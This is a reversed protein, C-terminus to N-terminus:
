DAMRGPYDLEVDLSTHPELAAWADIDFRLTVIGCTPMTDIRRAASLADAFETLGPNHGCLLLHACQDQERAVRLLEAVGATYLREDHLVRAPPVKLTRAFVEATALARPATSVVICDIRQKRFKLRRAMEAADELGRRTLVRDFDSQGPLAAEAQAHRVLTLRKM